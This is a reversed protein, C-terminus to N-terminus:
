PINERAKVPVTVDNNCPLEKHVTNDLIPFCIIVPISHRAPEQKVKLSNLITPIFDRLTEKNRHIIIEICERIATLVPM